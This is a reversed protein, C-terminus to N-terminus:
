IRIIIKLESKFFGNLFLECFFPAEVLLLLRLHIFDSSLYFLLDGVVDIVLETM